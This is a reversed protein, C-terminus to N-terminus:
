QFVTEIIEKRREDSSAGLYYKAKESLFSSKINALEASLQTPNDKFKTWMLQEEVEAIM